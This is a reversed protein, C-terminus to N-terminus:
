WMVLHHREYGLKDVILPFSTEFFYKDLTDTFFDPKVGDLFKKVINGRIAYFTILSMINAVPMNAEFDYYKDLATSYGSKDMPEKRGVYSVGGVLENSSLVKEIEKLQRFFGLYYSDYSTMWASDDTYSMGKTHIFYITEYENGSKKLLELATQFASADSPAVREPPTVAVNDYGILNLTKHYNTGSPNVGFYIDIDKFNKQMDNIYYPSRQLNPFWCAFVIANKTTM